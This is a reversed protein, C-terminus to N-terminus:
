YELNTLQSIRDCKNFKRKSIASFLRAEPSDELLKCRGLIDLKSTEFNSPVFLKPIQCPSISSRKTNCSKSIVSSSFDSSIDSEDHFFSFLCAQLIIREHRPVSWFYGNMFSVEAFSSQSLSSALYM